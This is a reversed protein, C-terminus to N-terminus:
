FRVDVNKLFESRQLAEKGSAGIPNWYLDLEELNVLTKSLALTQAGSDGILNSSLDLRELNSLYQSNALFATGSNGVDNYGLNLVKLNSLAKSNALSEAGFPGIENFGLDLWELHNLTKSNALSEAGSDGIGNSHLNLEKLNSLYRSNALVSVGSDEIEKHDLDVGYLQGKQYTFISIEPEELNLKAKEDETLHDLFDERVFNLWNLQWIEYEQAKLEEIKTLNEEEKANELAIQVSIFEGRPDGKGMLFDAYVLLIEDNETEEALMKVFEAQIATRM